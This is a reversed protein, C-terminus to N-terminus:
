GCADRKRLTEHTCLSEGARRIGALVGIAPQRATPRASASIVGGADELPAGAIREAGAGCSPPQVIRGAFLGSLSSM